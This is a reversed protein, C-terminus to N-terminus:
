AKNVLSSPTRAVYNACLSAMTPVTLLTSPTPVHPLTVSHM